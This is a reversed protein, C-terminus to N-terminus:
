KQNIQYIYERAGYIGTIKEATKTLYGLKLLNTIARRISTLPTNPKYEQYIKWAQSASLKKRFKFITLVIEEQKSAKNIAKSLDKKNLENTNYFEDVFSYRNRTIQSSM